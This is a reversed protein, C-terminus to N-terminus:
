PNPPAPLVAKAAGFLADHVRPRAARIRPNERTPCVRNTLLATATGAEPDCWLSTGTFGLHGFTRPSCRAGASSASESKGDFGARLSGGPRPQLLRELSARPLWSSGGQLVLLLAQGFRLVDGVAGFLGAHGSAAHGSFAWANEDHVVGRVSGGRARVVETPAVQRAFDPSRLWLHRASGLNLGLPRAVERTVLEDLPVKMAAELAAGVLLYGLDSYVPPFGGPPPEGGCDPRRANAALRLARGRHVAKGQFLPAFLSRHADLGARHCLLLELPVRESPTGRAEPLLEGLPTGVEVAGSADLRALTCAVIPKSVSALDFITEPCAREGAPLTGAAGVWPPGSIGVYGATAAPAVKAGVVEGELLRSVDVSPQPAPAPQNKVASL